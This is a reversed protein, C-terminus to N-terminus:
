SEVPESPQPALESFLDDGLQPHVRAPLQSRHSHVHQLFMEPLVPAQPQPAHGLAHVLVRHLLALQTLGEARALGEPSGVSQVGQRLHLSPHALKGTLQRQSQITIPGRVAAHGPEQGGGYDGWRVDGGFVAGDAVGVWYRLEVNVAQRRHAVRRDASPRRPPVGEGNNTEKHTGGLKFANGDCAHLGDGVKELIM